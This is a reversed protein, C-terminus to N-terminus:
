SPREDGTRGDGGGTRRERCAAIGRRQGRNVIVCRRAGPLSDRRSADDDDPGSEGPEGGRIAQFLLADDGGDVFRVRSQAAATPGIAGAEGISLNRLVATLKDILRVRLDTLERLFEAEWEVVHDRGFGIAAFREVVEVADRIRVRM